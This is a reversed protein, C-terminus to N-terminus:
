GNDNCDKSKKRLGHDLLKLSLILEAIVRQLTYYMGARGDLILLKFFLCYFLTLVPALIVRKRIKDKWGLKNKPTGLLKELELDAYKCQSDIWRNTPKRDDHVFRGKLEGVVIGHPIDLLQTHGDAAYQFQNSKFLSVRPPYISARLTKGFVAFDFGIAYASNEPNLAKLEEELETTCQYDADMALTWPTKVNALGFNWQSTHNDFKRHVVRVNKFDKAIELTRDDSFSDVIVVETAWRLGDLTRRLNNEENYTLILPTIDSPKM